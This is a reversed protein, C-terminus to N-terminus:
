SQLGDFQCHFIVPLIALLGSKHEVATQSLHSRLGSKYTVPVLGQMRSLASPSVVTWASTTTPTSSCASVPESCVSLADDGDAHDVDEMKAIDTDSEDIPLADKSPASTSASAPSAMKKGGRRAELMEAIKIKLMARPDSGSSSAPSLAKDQYM